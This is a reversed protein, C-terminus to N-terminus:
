EKKENLFAVYVHGLDNLKIDMLSKILENDNSSLDLTIRVGGDVTTRIGDIVAECTGIQNM